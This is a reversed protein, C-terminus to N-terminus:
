MSNIKNQYWRRAKNALPGSMEKSTFGNAEMTDAEEKHIDNFMWRIFDGVSSMEAPKLQEETLNKFGQELRQESCVSEIFDTLKAHKEVDISALTRVKSASHKEGKVKFWFRSSDYDKEWCKWVVGEGVGSVGFSKGVPCEQEVEETIKALHNQMLEPNDFDITIFFRPFDSVEYVGFESSKFGLGNNMNIWIDDNFRIAFVVFMKPLGTIAVGKQINGGCWEGFVAMNDTEKWSFNFSLVNKIHEAPTMGLEENKTTAWAMFGANDQEITLERERSQYTMPGSNGHIVIAANTGHLKVTGEFKLKPPIAARNMVPNGEKDLGVFQARQKVEKCVNRFQEISPFKIM